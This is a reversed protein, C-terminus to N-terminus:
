RTPLRFRDVQTRVALDKSAVGEMAIFGQGDAEHQGNIAAINPQNLSALLRAEREFRVLREDM